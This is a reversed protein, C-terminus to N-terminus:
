DYRYNSWLNEQTYLKVYSEYYIYERKSKKDSKNKQINNVLNGGSEISRCGLSRTFARGPSGRYEYIIM